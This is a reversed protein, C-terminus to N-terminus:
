AKAAKHKWPPKVAMLRDLGPNRAVPADLLATFQKFKEADLAFFVQDLVVEQSAGGARPSSVVAFPVPVSM